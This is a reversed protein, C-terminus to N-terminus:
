DIKPAAELWRYVPRTGWDSNLVSFAAEPESPINERVIGLSSFNMNWLFAPGMFTALDGSQLLEFARIVYQAQQTENLYTMWALGPDTPPIALPGAVHDRYRLNDFSPWGFETAWLKGSAHGNEVMIQRYDYITDLFFFFRQDDWGRGSGTCCRADPANAWGYPHVGIALNPDNIPLGVKYLDRLWNRDNVSGGTDGAPAPGATVVIIDASRARIAQYAADFYTKYVAATRPAGTWERILNPENWVEIATIYRRDWQDLLAGLFNAYTRPDTPPGNQDGQAAAPRAWDPANVVSILVKLGRQGAYFLNDAVVKFPQTFVGPEPEMEKWNVQVKVWGFGMFQARDVMGWWTPVEVVPHIQIGMLPRRLTPQPPVEAAAVPPVPTSTAAFFTATIVITQPTATAAPLNPDPTGVVPGFPPVYITPTAAPQAVTVSTAGMGVLLFLVLGLSYGWLWRTRM